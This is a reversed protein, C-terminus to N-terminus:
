PTEKKQQEQEKEKTGPLAWGIMSQALELTTTDSMGGLRDQATGDMVYQCFSIADELPQTVEPPTKPNDHKYPKAM